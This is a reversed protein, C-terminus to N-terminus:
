EEDENKIQEKLVEGIDRILNNIATIQALCYIVGGCLLVDIIVEIKM